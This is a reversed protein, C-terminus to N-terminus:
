EGKEAGSDGFVAQELQEVKKALVGTIKATAEATQEQRAYLLRFKPEVYNEIRRDVRKDMDRMYTEVDRRLEDVKTPFLEPMYSQLRRMNVRHHTRAQGETRVVIQWDYKAEACEVLRQLREGRFRGTWGLKEAAKDWSLLDNGSM